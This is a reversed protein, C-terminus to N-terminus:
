HAAPAQMPRPGVAQGPVRASLDPLIVPDGCWCLAGVGMQPAGLWTLMGRVQKLATFHDLGPGISITVRDRDWRPAQPNMDEVTVAVCM